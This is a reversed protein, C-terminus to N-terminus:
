RHHEAAGAPVRGTARRLAGVRARVDDLRADDVPEDGYWTAEFARTVATADDGLDPRRARVETLYEGTTRGPTEDLAGNAALAALMTRYWCRLADRRRGAARHAEAEAAWDDSSRGIGESASPTLRPSRRMGRAFRVAVLIGVGALAVLVVSGVLDAQEVGALTELLRGLQESVRARVRAAVSPELERFERRALVEEVAARATEPDVPPRPLELALRM